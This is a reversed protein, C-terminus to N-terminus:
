RASRSRRRANVEEPARWECLVRLGCDSDHYEPDFSSRDASRVRRRELNYTGGRANRRDGEAPGMTAEGRLREYADSDYWDACWEWVNGPMDYLGYANPPYSGVETTRGIVKRQPGPGRYNALKATM